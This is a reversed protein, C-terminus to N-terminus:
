IVVWQLCPQKQQLDEVQHCFLQNNHQELLFSEKCQMGILHGLYEENSSFDYQDISTIEAVYSNNLIKRKAQILVWTIGIWKREASLASIFIM